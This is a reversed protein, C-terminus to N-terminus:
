QRAPPRAPLFNVVIAVRTAIPRGGQSAPRYHRSRAHEVAAAEFGLNAPTARLVRVDSVDGKDDVLATLQVSGAVNGAEAPYHPAAQSILMPPIVTLSSAPAPAPPQPAAAESSADPRPPTSEAVPGEAVATGATGTVPAAGPRAETRRTTGARTRSARDLQASLEDAVPNRPDLELVRAIAARAGAADGRGYASRASEVAADLDRRVATARDLVAKAEANGPELALAERAHSEATAYDRNGLDARALDIKSAVLTAELQRVQDTAPAAAAPGAASDQLWWWGAGAVALLALAAASAALLPVARRAPPGAPPALTQPMRGTAPEVGTADPRWSAPVAASRSTAAAARPVPPPPPAVLPVAGAAQPPVWAGAPLITTALDEAATLRTAETRESEDVAALARGLEGADAYRRAADKALARDLVALLPPPTDPALRRAPEPERELITQLVQSLSPGEFARRGTLIEYFVVGLSFVDSRADVREGRVQEPSMYNPTGLVVGTRTIESSEIRALGFDLIKVRGGAEVQINGPKLDRHLVGRSHAFGMGQCLQRMVSLKEQLTRLAGSRIAQRLDTGELLEMAMYTLGSQPDEGYDYITVVNPHNLQAASQAERQFRRRFDPDSALAPSITKVAVQRNLLPDLARYVQGMAGQGIRGIVRYKGIREHETV